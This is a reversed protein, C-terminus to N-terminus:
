PSSAGHTRELRGKLWPAQGREYASELTRRIAAVPCGHELGFEQDALTGDVHFHLFGGAVIARSVSLWRGRVLRDVMGAGATIPPGLVDPIPLVGRPSGTVKAVIRAQDRFSLYPGVVAYRQGSSGRDLAALHAQALVEAEIVPIGGGPLAAVPSRSMALLVRTSTPGPDRPGIVMGPCLALTTMDPCSAGLVLAEAERKTETYPSRVSHLNWRSREDAPHSKTGAALTQLTSTYVFRRVGARRASGLLSRTAVVNVEASLGSPDQGLRVWSACHIVSDIGDVARQRVTPDRLDGSMWELPPDEGVERVPRRTLGRVGYRGEAALRRVIHGGVFGGAGTVLVLPKGPRTM